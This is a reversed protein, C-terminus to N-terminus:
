KHQFNPRRKELFAAVGERADATRYAFEFLDAEIKLGEALPVQLGREVSQKIMSISVAPQAAIHQAMKKAEALAQGEAVVQNVLGIRLAEGASIQDGLFMLEKAKAEGVRRPLRQTGGGGPIMGLRVEPLGFRANEAAICLDCCLTLECGGGLAIGQVAAIVPRCFSDLYDFAFGPATYPQGMYESIEAGAAFFKEGASSLVVCRIAEVAEIEKLRALLQLTVEYSLTNAPPNDIKM